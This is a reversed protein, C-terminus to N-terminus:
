VHWLRLRHSLPIVYCIVLYAHLLKSEQKKGLSFLLTTDPLVKSRICGSGSSSGFITICTIFRSEGCMLIHDVRPQIITKYVIYKSKRHQSTAVQHDKVSGSCFNALSCAGHVLPVQQHIGKRLVLDSWAAYGLM